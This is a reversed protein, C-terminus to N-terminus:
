QTTCHNGFQPYIVGLPLIHNKWPLAFGFGCQETKHAIVAFSIKSRFHSFIKNLTILCLIYTSKLLPEFFNPFWQHLPKHPRRFFFHPAGQDLVLTPFRCGAHVNPM